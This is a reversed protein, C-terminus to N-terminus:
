RNAVPQGVLESLEELTQRLVRDYKKSELRHSKRTESLQDALKTVRDFFNTPTRLHDVPHNSRVILIDSCYESLNIIVVPGGIAATRLHCFPISGWFNEFGPLAQIRLVVKDLEESLRRKEALDRAFTDKGGIAVGDDDTGALAQVFDRVHTTTIIAELAQSIETFEDALSKDVGRLHDLPTRLSRMGSWLLTRGQELMEIAEEYARSDIAYSAADM